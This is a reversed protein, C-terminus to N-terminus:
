PCRPGPAFARVFLLVAATRSSGHLAGDRRDPM